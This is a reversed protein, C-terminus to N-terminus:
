ADKYFWATHDKSMPVLKAHHKTITLGSYDRAYTMIPNTCQLVIHEHSEPANCLPCKAVEKQEAEDLQQDKSRYGEHWYLDYIIKLSRQKDFTTADGNKWSESTLQM